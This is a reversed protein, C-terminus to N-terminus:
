IQSAKRARILDGELVLNLQTKGWISYWRSNLKADLLENALTELEPETLGPSVRRSALASAFYYADEADLDRNRLAWRIAHNIATESPPFVKVIAVVRRLCNARRAEGDEVREAVSGFPFWAALNALVARPYIIAPAANALAEEVGEKVAEFDLVMGDFPQRASYQTRGSAGSQSIKTLGAVAIDQLGPPHRRIEALFTDATYFPESPTRKSFLGM